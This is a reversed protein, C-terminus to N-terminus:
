SVSFQWNTWVSDNEAANVSNALHLNQYKRNGNNFFKWIAIELHLHQNIILKVFPMGVSSESTLSVHVYTDQDNVAINSLVNGSM